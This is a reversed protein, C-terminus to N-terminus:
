KRDDGLHGTITDRHHNRMVEMHFSEGEDYSELIRMLHSPGSPKRGDVSLIVDGGKLNLKSDKPVSVVLVGDTTGFYSGLDDNLPALELDGLPSGMMLRVRTPMGPTMRSLENLRLLENQAPFRMMTKNSDLLQKWVTGSPGNLSYFSQNDDETVLRVTRRDKGRRLEVSITDNPALRAALEILRLGPQSQGESPSNDASDDEDRGSLVSKGDLKTIIDGSRVGAKAAPGGPTVSQVLAGISDSGNSRLDVTVGLRPRGGFAVRFSDARGFGPRSREIMVSRPASRPTQALLPTAALLAVAPIMWQAKM